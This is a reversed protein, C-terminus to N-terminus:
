NGENWFGYIGTRYQDCVAKWGAPTEGLDDGYAERAAYWHAAMLKVAQAALKPVATSDAHGAVFQVRVAPVATPHLSPFTFGSGFTVRAPAGSLDVTYNSPDITQWVGATDLYQASSVATVPHRPIYVTGDVPWGDLRLRFTSTMLVYGTQKAFLEDAAGLWDELLDDESADNLRLHAKLTEMSVSTSAAPTIIEIRESM